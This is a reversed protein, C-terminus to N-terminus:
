RILCWLSLYLIIVIIIYKAVLNSILYITINWATKVQFKEHFRAIDRYIACFIAVTETRNVNQNPLNSHM